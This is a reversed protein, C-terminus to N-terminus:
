MCREYVLFDETEERIVVVGVPAAYANGAMRGDAVADAIEKGHFECLLADWCGVGLDGCDAVPVDSCLWTAKSQCGEALCTGDDRCSICDEEYIIKVAGIPEARFRMFDAFRRLSRTM